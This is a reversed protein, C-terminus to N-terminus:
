RSSSPDVRHAVNVLHHAPYFIPTRVSRVRHVYVCAICKVEKITKCWLYDAGHSSLRQLQPNEQPEQLQRELPQLRRQKTQAAQTESTKLSDFPLFASWAGKLQLLLHVQHPSSGRALAAVKCRKVIRLILAFSRSFPFFSSCFRSLSKTSAAYRRSGRTAPFFSASLASRHAWGAYNYFPCALM